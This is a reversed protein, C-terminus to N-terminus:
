KDTYLHTNLENAKLRFYYMQVDIEHNNFARIIEKKTNLIKKM